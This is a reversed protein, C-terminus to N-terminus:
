TKKWVLVKKGTIEHTEMTSLRRKKNTPTASMTLKNGDVVHVIEDFFLKKLEVLPYQACKPFKTSVCRTMEDVACIFSKYLVVLDHIPQVLSPNRIKVKNIIEQLQIIVLSLINQLDAPCLSEKINDTCTAIELRTEIEKYFVPDLKKVSDIEEKLKRKMIQFDNNVTCVIISQKKTKDQHAFYDDLSFTESYRQFVGPLAQYIDNAREHIDQLSTYVSPEIWGKYKRLIRSAKEVFLRLRRLLSYAVWDELAKVRALHLCSDVTDLTQSLEVFAQDARESPSPKM